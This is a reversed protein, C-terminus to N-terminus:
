EAQWGPGPATKHGWNVNLWHSPLHSSVRSAAHIMALGQPINLLCRFLMQRMCEFIPMELFATVSQLQHNQAERYSEDLTNYGPMDRESHLRRAHALMYRFIFNKWEAPQNASIRYGAFWLERDERIADAPFLYVMRGTPSYSWFLGTDPPVVPLPRGAMGESYPTVPNDIIHFVISAGALDCWNTWPLSSRSQKELIRDAEEQSQIDGFIHCSPNSNQALRWFEGDASRAVGWQCTPEIMLSHSVMLPSPGQSYQPLAPELLIYEGDPVHVDPHIIYEQGTTSHVPVLPQPMPTPPPPPAVMATTQAAMAPPAAMPTPAVMPPPQAVMPPAVLEQVPGGGNVMIPYSTLVGEPTRMHTFKVAPPPYAPHGPGSSSQAARSSELSSPNGSSQHLHGTPGLTLSVNNVTVPRVDHHPVAAVERHVGPEEKIMPLGPMNAQFQQVPATMRPPQVPRSWTLEKKKKGKM